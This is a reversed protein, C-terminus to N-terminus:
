RGKPVLVFMSTSDMPLSVTKSKVDLHVDRDTLLDHMAGGGVVTQLAPTKKISARAKGGFNLLVLVPPGGRFAPRIYAFMSDLTVDLVQINPSNLSPV